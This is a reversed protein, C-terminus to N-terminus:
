FNLPIIQCLKLPWMEWLSMIHFICQLDRPALHLTTSPPCLPDWDGRIAGVTAVASLPTPGCGGSVLGVSLILQLPILMMASLNLETRVAGPPNCMSVALCKTGFLVMSSSFKLLSQAVCFYLNELCLYSQRLTTYKIIHRLVWIFPQNELIAPAALM